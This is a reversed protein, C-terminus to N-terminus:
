KAIQKKYITSIKEGDWVYSYHASQTCHQISKAKFLAFNKGQGRVSHYVLGDEQNQKVHAGLQQAPSYNDSSYVPHNKDFALLDYLEANFEAILSRMDIEQAPEQTYNLFRQRHYVTEAIATELSESAYYIGYDGNSFRSGNPNIHTFAAMVFGCGPIGYIRDDATLLDLRGIEEQIRPNTLAQVTYLAEFEEPSAVDEFLSIPPFRSPILRFCRQNTFTLQLLDSEVM